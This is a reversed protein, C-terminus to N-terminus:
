EPFSTMPQDAGLHEVDARREVNEFFEKFVAPEGQDQFRAKALEILESDSANAIWPGWLLFAGVVVAGISRIRM